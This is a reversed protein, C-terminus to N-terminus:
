ATLFNAIKLFPTEANTGVNRVIVKRMKMEVLVTIKENKLHVSNTSM